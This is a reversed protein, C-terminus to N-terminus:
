YPVMGDCDTYEIRGHEPGPFEGEVFLCNRFHIHSLDNDDDFLEYGNFSCKQFTVNQIKSDRIAGEDMDGEFSCNEFLVDRISCNVFSCKKFNINKITIMKDSDKSEIYYNEIIIAQMERIPGQLGKEILLNLEKSVESEVNGNLLRQTRSSERFKISYAKVMIEFILMVFRDDPNGNINNLYFNKLTDFIRSNAKSELFLAYGIFTVCQENLPVHFLISENFTMKKDRTILETFIESLLFSRFSDHVFEVRQKSIMKLLGRIFNIEFRDMLLNQIDKRDTSLYEKDKVLHQERAVEKMDEYCQDENRGPHRGRKIWTKIFYKYLDTLNHIKQTTYTIKEDPQKYVNLAKGTEIISYKKDKDKISWKGKEKKIITEKSLIQGSNKFDNRLEDTMIDSDLAEKHKIHILFWDADMFAHIIMKAVIPFNVVGENMEDDEYLFRFDDKLKSFLHFVYDVIKATTIDFRQSYSAIFDRVKANSFNLIELAGIMKKSIDLSRSLQDTFDGLPNVNLYLYNERSSLIVKHGKTLLYEKVGKFLTRQKHIKFNWLDMIEDLGDLLIVFREDGILLKNKLDYAEIFSEEIKFEEILSEIISSLFSEEDSIDKSELARLPIFLCINKDRKKLIDRNLKSFFRHLVFSKGGGPGSYILIFEKSELENDLLSLVNENLKAGNYKLEPDIFWDPNYEYDIDAEMETYANILTKVFDQKDIENNESETKDILNPNKGTIAWLLRKWADEDELGNRFDVHTYNQLFIPIEPKDPCGPLLIPIVPKNQKVSLNIATLMEPVEWQGLGADGIFVGITRSQMLGKQIGGLWITGPVLNWKDFWVAINRSQLRKAIDEIHAKDISNHSLFIDFKGKNMKDILM